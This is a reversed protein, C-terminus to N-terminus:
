SFTHVLNAENVLNCPTSKDPEPYPCPAPEQLRPLLSEPEM